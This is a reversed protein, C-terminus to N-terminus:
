VISVPTYTCCLWFFLVSSLVLGFWFMVLFCFSLCFLVFAFCLLLVGLFVVWWGGVGGVGRDDVMVSSGFWV